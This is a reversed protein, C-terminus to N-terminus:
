GRRGRVRRYAGVVARRLPDPLRVAADIAVQRATARMRDVSSRVRWGLWRRTRQLAGRDVAGEVSIGGPGGLRARGIEVELQLPPGLRARLPVEGAGAPGDGFSGRLSRLWLRGLAPRVEAPWSREDADSAAVLEGTGARLGRGAVVPLEVELTLGRRAVTTAAARWDSAPLGSGTVELALGDPGVRPIALRAPEGFAAPLVDRRRGGDDFTLHASRGFGVGSWRLIVSWQGDSLPIGAPGVHLPDVEVSAVVSVQAVRGGGAHTGDDTVIPAFPGPVLWELATRPDLLSVRGMTSAVEADVLEGGGVLDPDLWTGGDRALYRMPAGTDRDRLQARASVVLRGDRWRLDTLEAHLDHAEMRETFALLTAADGARLLRARVRNVGGFTGDMAADVRATAFGHFAAFTRDRLAPDTALYRDDLRSLINARYFRRLLKERLPGPATAAEIVDFAEGLHAVHPEPELVEASLHGGEDRRVFFYCPADAFISVNRAALYARLVFVQDELWRWGEPFTIGRERLM